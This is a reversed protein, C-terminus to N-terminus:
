FINPGPKGLFSCSKLHFSEEVLAKKLPWGQPNNALLQSSVDKWGLHSDLHSMGLM